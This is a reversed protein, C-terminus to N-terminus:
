PLLRILTTMSGREGSAVIRGDPQIGTDRLRFLAFPVRVEGNGEAGFSTDRMGNPHLRVLVNGQELDVLGVVIRGASDQTLGEALQGPLSVPQGRNFSLDTSGDDNLRVIACEVQGSTSVGLLVVLLKRERTVSLRRCDSYRFGQFRLTRFGAEGFTADPLGDRDCRGVFGDDGYGGGIYFGSDALTMSSIMVFADPLFTLRGGEGFDDDQSGDARRRYLWGGRRGSSALLISGGRLMAVRPLSVQQEDIFSTDALYRGDADFALVPLLDGAPGTVVFGERHLALGSITNAPIAAPATLFGDGTDGFGEDITGDSLLRAAGMQDFVPEVRQYSGFIILRSAEDFAVSTLNNPFNGPSRVEVVGDTGFSPDLEGSRASRGRRLFKM